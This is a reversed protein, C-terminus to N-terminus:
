RWRPAAGSPASSLPCSPLAPHQLPAVDTSPMPAASHQVPSFATIVRRRPNRSRHPVIVDNRQPLSSIAPPASSDRRRCRGLLRMRATPFRSMCWPPHDIFRNIWARGKGGDPIILPASTIVNGARTRSAAAESRTCSRISFPAHNAPPLLSRTRSIMPAVRWFCAMRASRCPRTNTDSEASATKRIPACRAAAREPKIRCERRYAYM